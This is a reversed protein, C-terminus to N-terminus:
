KRRRFLLALGGLGLLATSSPEPVSVADVILLDTAFDGGGSMNQGPALAIEVTVKTADTPIVDKM